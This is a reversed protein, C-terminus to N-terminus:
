QADFRFQFEGEVFVMCSTVAGNYCCQYEAEDDFTVDSIELTHTVDVNSIRYKKSDAVEEGSKLWKIPAGERSV